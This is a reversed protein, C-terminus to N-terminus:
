FSYRLSLQINRESSKATVKSFTASRPNTTVAGWNPHNLFNFSEARLLVRHKEFIPFEKSLSLNWNQFGPNYIYQNRGQTTSFTGAAPATFLAGSGDTARFWFNSDAAGQSFAREGRSLMPNGRVEWPQSDSSGIGALDDSTGITVPTGTQFQIASTAMWGGLVRGALGKNTKLFPIEYIVNTVAVHRTDFDSPGWFNKDDYANYLRARFDSGNDLSKSYTYAFNFSFGKAFRRNVDLQMGQYASRAATERYAINTYGKYPRLVNVNVAKNAAVTLTGVPLQNLDREREMHLGVRGVYAVSVTTDFGVNREYTANWNYASPIKFEPEITMFYFPFANNSGGGPNDVQGSAISAMPQFPPNGGLLINGSMSPRAFFRGFGARLVDKGSISYALGVRPQFNMTQLQPYAKSGGTFLRDYAGSDVGSVRGKAESPFGNGPIVVGNYRDGSLIFGTKPDQVVAKSPDYQRPDFIAINRWLSYWFPTMLTHRIGFEVRLKSSAKWSDQAFWEFQQGRYPTYSRPGIEAYTDFLGLAANAVALGSTAAGARSDTFVFRGNQNNTGGPVGQVNIQDFDNQGSYEYSVGAKLTHSGMIKTLSDALVYIPGASKSPYPSGDVTAFNAIGITPVKDAIEKQEPYIYPYNIGYQGRAYKGNDRNVDIRVRDVSVSAQLENITTPSLTWTWNTTWTENPRDWRPAAIDFGTNFAQDQQFQYNLHRFRVAHRESPNFDVSITDKRQDTPQPATTYYNSAGQLFGAVPAPYAKLLGLGNASVRSAPILNGAFPQGTLPDNITRVKGFFSNSASLLESFDGQRMALSPVIQASTQEQRYRVYEQAWLFFLKNKEQNWKGPVYVPGSVVYGFQNFKNAQRVDGTRNRAWTNADLKENRFYEYLSGHFDRGGSKTVIRVQGGSARGYEANYNATLVQIEQVTEVDVTGVSTNNGRTRVAPAGDYTIMNDTTRSGNIAFGGNTLDFSFAQLSGGRVGPKLLALYLPNRGNLMMNEIQKGEILKGVTATESQVTAAEATVEVSESLSGLTLTADITAAMNPDLKNQTKVYKKFGPAEVSLAYVGPPLSPVVYYGSENTTAHRELGTTENRLDVSVNPIGAGAPDKVYGSVQASDSQALVTGVCLFFLALLPRLQKM